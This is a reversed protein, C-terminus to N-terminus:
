GGSWLPGVQWLGQSHRVDLWRQADRRGLELLGQAFERAFFLYSLLEGHAADSGGAVTRGLLRVDPSRLLARAGAYHRNFVERALRGVTDRRQPAILIYPVLRKDRLGPPLKAQPRRGVIQNIGALTAVDNVLPDVLVAQMLQVAGVLADPRQRSALRPSAPAISNLALVVVREAGLTLAPKIPTNLRTGGDFYWGRAPSPTSVEVAPFLAPIAASARVHEEILETEVYDIGRKEDPAPAGGGRHFVVTRSTAASTATVAAATVTGDAVNTEIQSFPILRQLTAALPTPDLLSALRAGPVGLFEGLYGITREITSGSVIPALVQDYRIDSWIRWGEDVLEEVPLQLTGALFAGNLAGASTGVIVQPREGRRELEPLLASLAGVEYAGRAGGGALVVGVKQPRDAAPTV